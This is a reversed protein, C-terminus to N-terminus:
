RRRVATTWRCRTRHRCSGGAHFTGVADPETFQNFPTSIERWYGIRRRSSGIGGVRYIDEAVGTKEHATRLWAILETRRAQLDAPLKAALSRPSPGQALQAATIEPLPLKADQGPRPNQPLGIARIADAAELVLEDPPTKTSCWSRWSRSTYIRQAHQRVTTPNEEQLALSVSYTQEGQRPRFFCLDNAPRRGRIRHDNVLDALLRHIATPNGALEFTANEIADGLSCNLRGSLDILRATHHTSFRQPGGRNSECGCDALRCDGKANGAGRELHAISGSNPPSRM